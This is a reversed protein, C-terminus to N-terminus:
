CAKRGCLTVPPATVPGSVACPYFAYHDIREGRAGLEWFWVAFNAAILSVTVLPFRRTPVNDFLPLM